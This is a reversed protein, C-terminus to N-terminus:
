AASKIVRGQCKQHLAGDRLCPSGMSSHLWSAWMSSGADVSRSGPLKGARCKRVIGLPTMGVLPAVEEPMALQPLAESLHSYPSM